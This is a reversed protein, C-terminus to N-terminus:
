GTITEIFASAASEGISFTFQKKLVSVYLYGNDSVGFQMQSGTPNGDGGSTFLVKVNGSRFDDYAARKAKSRSFLADRAAEAVDVHYARTSTYGNRVTQVRVSTSFAINDLLNLDEVLNGLTEPSYDEATYLLPTDFGDVDLAMMATPAINKIQYATAKVRAAYTKSTEPLDVEVTRIPVDSVDQSEATSSAEYQIGAVNIHAIEDARMLENTWSITATQTASPTIKGGPVDGPDEQETPTEQGVQGSGNGTNQGSTEGPESGSQSDQGPSPQGSQVDSGQGSPAGPADDTGQGTKGSQSGSQGQVTKGGQSTQGTKGAQEGGQGSQGNQSDSGQQNPTDVKGTQGNSDDQGGPNRDTPQESDDGQEGGPETQSQGPTDSGPEEDSPDDPQTPVAGPTNVGQNGTNDDTDAPLSVQTGGSIRDFLGRLGGDDANALIAFTSVLLVISAAIATGYFWLPRKRRSGASAATNRRATKRGTREAAASAAKAAAGAASEASIRAMPETAAGEAVKATTDATRRMSASSMQEAAAGAAKEPASGTAASGAATAPSAADFGSMEGDLLDLIGSMDSMGSMEGTKREQSDAAGQVLTLVPATGAPRGEMGRASATEEAGPASAPFATEPTSVTSASVTSTSVTSVPAAQLVAIKNLLASVVDDSPQMQAKMSRIHDDIRM